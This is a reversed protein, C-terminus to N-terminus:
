NCENKGNHYNNHHLHNTKYFIADISTYCNNLIGVTDLSLKLLHKLGYNPFEAASLILTKTQQLFLLDSVSMNLSFIQPKNILNVNLVLLKSTELHKSFISEIYIFVFEGGAYSFNSMTVVDSTIVKNTINVDNLM